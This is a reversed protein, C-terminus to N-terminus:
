PPPRRQAAAPRGPLVPKGNGSVEHDRSYSRYGATGEGLNGTWTITAQCRHEHGVRGHQWASSPIPLISRM